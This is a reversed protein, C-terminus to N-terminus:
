RVYVKRTEKGQVRIYVGASPNDVRQGQLNYYVAKSPNLIINGLSNTEDVPFAPGSLRLNAFGAYGKTISNVSTPARYIVTYEDSTQEVGDSDIYTYVVPSIKGDQSIVMKMGEGEPCVLNKGGTTYMFPVADVSQGGRNFVNQQKLTLVGEVLNVEFKLSSMMSGYTGLSLGSISVTSEDVKELTCKGSPSGNAFSEVLTYTYDYEHCLSEVNQLSINDTASASACVALALTLISYLKKM